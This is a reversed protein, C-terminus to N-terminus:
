ALGLGAARRRPNPTTPCVLRYRRPLQLNELNWNDKLYLCARKEKPHTSASTPVPEKQLKTYFAGSKQQTWRMVSSKISKPNEILVKTIRDAEPIHYSTSSYNHYEFCITKFICHHLLSLSLNANSNTKKLEPLMDDFMNALQSVHKMVSTSQHFVSFLIERIDWVDTKRKVYIAAKESSLSGLQASKTESSIRTHMQCNLMALRRQLARASEM